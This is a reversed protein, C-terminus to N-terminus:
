VLQTKVTRWHLIDLLLLWLPFTAQTTNKNPTQPKLSVDQGKDYASQSLIAPSELHCSMNLSLTPMPCEQTTPHPGPDSLLQVTLTHAVVQLNGRVEAGLWLHSELHNWCLTPMLLSVVRYCVHGCKAHKWVSVVPLFVEHVPFLSTLTTWAAATQMIYIHINECHLGLTAAKGAAM